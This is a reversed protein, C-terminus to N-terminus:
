HGPRSEDAGETQVVDPPATKVAHSITSEIFPLILSYVEEREVGTTVVHDSEELWHLSKSPTATALRYLEDACQPNVTQDRKSQIICLPARIKSLSRRGQTTLSLLEAIAPIPLRIMGKISDVVEKNSFDITTVSPDRLKAQKLIEAQVKPDQFNLTALPYFWKIFYRALPLLKVQWGGEFRTATSMTVVGTIRAPHRAALLLALVGGMSLGAIFIYKYQELRKLGDESSAIWQKRGSRLLAEPDGGHGTVSMGYIRIDHAALVDGLGRMEVPTGSFGHILLCATDTDEPGILFPSNPQQTL